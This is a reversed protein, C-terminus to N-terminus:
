SRLDKDGGATPQELGCLHGWGLCPASLPEYDILVGFYATSISIKGVYQAWFKNISLTEFLLVFPASIISVVLPGIFTRPVM